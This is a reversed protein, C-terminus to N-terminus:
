CIESRRSKTMKQARRRWSLRPRRTRRGKWQENKKVTTERAQSDIRKNGLSIAGQNKSSLM